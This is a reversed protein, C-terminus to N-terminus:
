LASGMITLEPIVARPPMKACAMVAEAVHEPLLAMARQEPTPKVPRRELLETDVMGPCIVTTRIGNEKEELRIAHSLGMMGRKTAQYAAGSADPTHGSTSSIFILHGNRAERMAPLVAHAAYFAGNLNTVVMENWIDATLRRLSRDPTNIGTAYVLIDIPGLLNTTEDVLRRMDAAKMADAVATEVRLGQAQMEAQLQSLRDRRRAAAMVKAGDRAMLEATVRGIGSSAGIILVVRDKLSVPM